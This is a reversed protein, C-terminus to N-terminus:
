LKHLKSYPTAIRVKHAGFDVIVAEDVQVSVVRGLGHTDHSVRDDVAFQEV